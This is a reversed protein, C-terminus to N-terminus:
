KRAKPQQRKSKYGGTERTMGMVDDLDVLGRRFDAPEIPRMSANRRQYDDMVGWVRSCADHYANDKISSKFNNYSIGAVQASIITAVASRPVLARFRYDRDPSTVIRIASGFVREIDGKRRSRVLLYDKMLSPLRSPTEAKLAPDAQTPAVISFFGNNLFLWM